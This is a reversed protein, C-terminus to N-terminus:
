CRGCVLDFLDLIESTLCRSLADTVLAIALSIRLNTLESTSFCGTRPHDNVLPNIERYVM